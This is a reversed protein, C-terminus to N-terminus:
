REWSPKRRMHPRLEKSVSTKQDLLAEQQRAVAQDSSGAGIQRETPDGAQMALRETISPTNAAM